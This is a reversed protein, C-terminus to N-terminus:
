GCNAILRHPSRRLHRPGVFRSPRAREQGFRQRARRQSSAYVISSALRAYNQAESETANLQQLIVQGHTWALDLMRNALDRDHYKEALALAAERTEGVGSVIDIVATEDPALSITSRIAVIPDLVSGEGNALPGPRLMARPNAVDRGRGLFAARDTEYSTEGVAGGHVSMLHLMWAPQEHASRPRRTCLIGQRERIIETQIFLKSFAPHTADGAADAMVVEAYSTLEITRPLRSRNTLKIRRLEVDDEPSVTVDAHTDIEFDRRRFEARSNPFIAEYAPSSIHTPQFSTSWVENSTVDRLYCFTGADDRSIDESWRTVAIDRWRSYGGGANNIMVHYRGNSLLHVEPIPTHPTNFVRMQRKRPGGDRAASHYRGGLALWGAAGRSGARAAADRGSSVAPLCRLAAADASRALRSGPSLFEDGSSAVHLIARRCVIARAIRSPTYDVAEYFGYSGGFGMAAMWRLNECAARPDVMLAMASAYPAIVLDDALGRKFGLGPVGFARYQYNLHLDTVNYGSESIGWPVDRSHRLRNTAVGGGPM